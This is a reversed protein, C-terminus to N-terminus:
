GARPRRNQILGQQRGSPWPASTRATQTRIAWVRSLPWSNSRMFSPWGAWPPTSAWRDDIKHVSKAPVHIKPRYKRYNEDGYPVVTNLGDNGGTLELAVLIHNKSGESSGATLARASTALFSPVSTGCALLTSSGLGLRLFDRRTPHM